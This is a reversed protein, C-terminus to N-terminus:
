KEGCREIFKELTNLLGALNHEGLCEAYDGQLAAMVELSELMLRTGRKTLQLVRARGDQPDSRVKLYGAEELEAALRGM